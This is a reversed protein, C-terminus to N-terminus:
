HDCDMTCHRPLHFPPPALPRSPKQAAVRAGTPDSNTSAAYPDIPRHTGHNPPCRCIFIELDRAQPCRCHLRDISLLRTCLLDLPFSRSSLPWPPLRAMPQQASLLFLTLSFRRLFPPHPRKTATRHVTAPNLDKAPPTTCNTPCRTPSSVLQRSPLPIFHSQWTM